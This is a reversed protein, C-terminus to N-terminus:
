KTLLGKRMRWAPPSALAGGVKDTARAGPSAPAAEALSRRFSPSDGM